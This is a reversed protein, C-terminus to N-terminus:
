LNYLWRNRQLYKQQGGRGPFPQRAHKSHLHVTYVTSDNGYQQWDGICSRHTSHKKADTNHDSRVASGPPAAMLADNQVELVTGFHLSWRTGPTASHFLCM